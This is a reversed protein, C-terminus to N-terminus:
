RLRNFRSISECLSLAENRHRFQSRIPIQPRTTTPRKKPISKKWWMLGGFQRLETLREAKFLRSESRSTQLLTRRTPRRIATEMWRRPSQPIVTLCPVLIVFCGFRALEQRTPRDVIMMTVLQQNLVPMLPVIDEFVNGNPNTSYFEELNIVLWGEDFIQRRVDDNDLADEFTSVAPLPTRSIERAGLDAATQLGQAVYLAHGFTLIAALLMYLVLGIVAFEVLAQGHRAQRHRTVRETCTSNRNSIM